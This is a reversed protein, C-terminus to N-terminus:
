RARRKLEKYFNERPGFQILVILLKEQIIQYAVRFQIGQYHFKYVWFIHLSGALRDGVGYPDNAIVPLYKTKFILLIQKDVRKFDKKLQNAYIIQYM